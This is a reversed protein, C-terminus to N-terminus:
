CFAGRRRRSGLLWVVPAAKVGVLCCARVGLSAFTADVEATHAMRPEGGAAASVQSSEAAVAQRVGGASDAGGSCAAAVHRRAFQPQRCRAPLAHILCLPHRGGLGGLARVLGSQTLCRHMGASEVRPAPASVLSQRPLNFQFTPSMMLPFRRM